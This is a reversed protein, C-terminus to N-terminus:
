ALAVREADQRSRHTPQTTVPEDAVLMSDGRDRSSPYIGERRHRRRLMLAIVIGGTLGSFMLWAAQDFQFVMAIAVVVMGLGGVGAVRVSSMNVIDTPGRGAFPDAAPPLTTWHLLKWHLIVAIIGGGAVGLMAIGAFPGTFAAVAIAAAVVVTLLVRVITM